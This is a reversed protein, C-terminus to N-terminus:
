KMRIREQISVTEVTAAKAEAKRKAQIERLKKISADFTAQSNEPLSYGRSIMRTVWAATTFEKAITKSVGLFKAAHKEDRNENYWNLAKSIDGQTPATKKNWSPEDGVHQKAIIVRKRKM